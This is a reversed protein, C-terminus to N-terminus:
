NYKRKLNLLMRQLDKDPLPPPQKKMKKGTAKKQLRKTKASTLHWQDCWPCRYPTFHGRRAKGMGQAAQRAQQQTHYPTKNCM